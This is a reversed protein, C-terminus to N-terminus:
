EDTRSNGSERTTGTYCRYARHVRANKVKFTHLTIYLLTILQAAIIVLKIFPTVTMGGLGIWDFEVWAHVIL